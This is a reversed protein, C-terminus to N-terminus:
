KEHLIKKTVVIKNEKKLCNIGIFVSASLFGLGLFIWIFNFSSFLSYFIFFISYLFSIIVAFIEYIWKLPHYVFELKDQYVSMQFGEKSGTFIM